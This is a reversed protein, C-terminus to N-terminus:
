VLKIIQCFNRDEKNGDGRFAKNQRALTRVIDVLIKLLIDNMDEAERIKANQFAKNLVSDVQSLLNGFTVYVSLAKKTVRWVLM